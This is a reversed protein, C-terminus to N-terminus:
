SPINEQIEAPTDVVGAERKLQRIEVELREYDDM